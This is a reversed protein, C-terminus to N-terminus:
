RVSTKLPLAQLNQIKRKLIDFILLLLEGPHGPSVGWPTIWVGPFESNQIWSQCKASVCLVQTHAFLRFGSNNFNSFLTLM